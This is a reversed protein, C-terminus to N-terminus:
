RRRKRIKRVILLIISILLLLSVIEIVLAITTPFAYFWVVPGNLVTLAKDSNKGVQADLSEDYSVSISSKYWGGWYPRPLEFNWDSTQGRLIPYQGGNTQLVKGFFYETNAKVNADISVNGLNKVKPVLIFTDKNKKSVSYGTIELKRSIEGPVLVAVRLGTRFSLQVGSGEAEAKKEQVVICANHEGVSANAPLNVKFPIIENTMSELVVEEKELSIWSGLDTKPEVAQACAFNGGTSAVSDVAYVLLTKQSATNNIVKIGDAQTEGPNLTYIFISETRPNDARPNAPRGGIGGYEVAFVPYAFSCLLLSVIFIKIKNM